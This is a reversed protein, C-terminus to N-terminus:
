DPANQEDGEGDHEDATQRRHEAEIVGPQGHRSEADQEADLM